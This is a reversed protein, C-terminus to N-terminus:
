GNNLVGVFQFFESTVEKISAFQNTSEKELVTRLNTGHEKAEKSPVGLQKIAENVLNKDTEWVFPRTEFVDPKEPAPKPQPRPAAPTPCAANADDDTQSLCVAAALGYRRAYTIASGVGQMDKKALIVPVETEMWQGSAHVLKTVCVAESAEQFVAIGNAALAPLCAARVSELDAYRSKFHPNTSDALAGKMAAQAKSLAAALEGISESHKMRNGGNFPHPMVIARTRFRSLVNKVTNSM